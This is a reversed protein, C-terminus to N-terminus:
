GDTGFCEMGGTDRMATKQEDQQKAGFQAKSRRIKSRDVTHNETISGEGSKKLLDADELCKIVSNWYASGARDSGSYRCLEAVFPGMYIRTESNNNHEAGKPVFNDNIDDQDPTEVELAEKVKEKKKQFLAM